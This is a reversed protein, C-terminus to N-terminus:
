LCGLRDTEVHWGREDGAGVLYDFLPAVQQMQECGSIHLNESAPLSSRAVREPLRRGFLALARFRPLYAGQGHRLSLGFGTRRTSIGFGSPPPTRFSPMGVTSSRKIRCATM